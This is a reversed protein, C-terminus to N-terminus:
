ENLIEQLYLKIIPIWEKREFKEVDEYRKKLQFYKKYGYDKPQIIKAPLEYDKGSYSERKEDIGKKYISKTINLMRKLVREQKKLVEEDFKGDKLNKSVDKLSDALDSLAQGVDKNSGEGLKKMKESLSNEMNGLMDLIDRKMEGKGFMEWLMQSIYQQEKSISSLQEAIRELSSAGEGQPNDKLLFNIIMINQEKLPLLDQSNQQAINQATKLLITLPSRIDEGTYDIISQYLNSVLQLDQTSDIVQDIFLLASIILDKNYRESKGSMKELNEEIKNKLNELKDKVDKTKSFNNESEKSTKAIDSLEKEYEELDENKITEGKLGEIKETIERQKGFDKKEIIKKETEILKKIDENLKNLSFIKGLDKLVNKLKDLEREIDKSESIIKDFIKEKDKESINEFDKNLLSNLNEILNKDIKDIESKLEAMKKYVNEPLKYESINKLEEKVKEFNESMNKLEEKLKNVNEMKKEKELQELIDMVKQSYSDINKSFDGKLYTSDIFTSINEERILDIVQSSGIQRKYPNNDKLVFHLSKYKEKISEININFILITDKGFMKYPISFSDKEGQFILYISDNGYDDRCIVPIDAEDKLSIDNKIDIINVYPPKDELINIKLSDQINGKKFFLTTDKSVQKLEFKYETGDNFYIETIFSSYELIDLFNGKLTFSKLLTYKPPNVETLISDILFGKLLKLSLMNSEVKPGKFFIYSDLSYDKGKEFKVIKCDYSKVFLDGSIGGYNFSLIKFDDKFKKLVVKKETLLLSNSLLVPYFTIVSLFIIISIFLFSLKKERVDKRYFKKEKLNINLFEEKLNKVFIDDEKELNEYLVLPINKLERNISNFFEVSKKKSSLILDKFSFIFVLVLILIFFFNESYFLNNLFIHSSFIILFITLFTIVSEVFNEFLIKNHIKQFIKKLM